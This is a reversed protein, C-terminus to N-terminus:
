RRVLARPRKRTGSIKKLKLGLRHFRRVARGYKHRSGSTRVVIAALGTAFKPNSAASSDYLQQHGEIAFNAVALAAYGPSSRFRSVLGWCAWGPLVGMGNMVRRLSINAPVPSAAAASAGRMVTAWAGVGGAAAARGNLCSGRGQALLASSGCRSARGM